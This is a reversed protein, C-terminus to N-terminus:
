DGMSQTLLQVNEGHAWVIPNRESERTAVLLVCWNGTAIKNHHHRIRGNTPDIVLERVVVDEIINENLALLIQVLGIFQHIIICRHYKALAGVFVLPVPSDPLIRQMGLNEQMGRLAKSHGLVSAISLV